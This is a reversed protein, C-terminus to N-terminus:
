KESVITLSEGIKILEEITIVDSAVKYEIGNDYFQVYNDMLVCVTGGFVYISGNVKTNIPTFEDVYEQVITYSSKGGYKIIASLKNKNIIKESILFTGSPFYSPYSIVREFEKETFTEEIYNLTEQVKFQDNNININKDFKTILFRSIINKNADYTLVEKLNNKKDLIIKMSENSNSDFIKVPFEIFIENDSETRNCNEKNILEKSLSELIYPYTSNMPWSSEIKFTKNISPIIIHVGDSNKIMMQTKNTEPNTIEVYYFPKKYNVLVKSEKQSSPFYNTLNGELSYSELKNISDVFDEEINKEKCSFLFIPLVLIMFIYLIKKM